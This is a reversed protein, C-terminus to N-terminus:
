NIVCDGAEVSMNGGQSVGILRWVLFYKRLIERHLTKNSFTTFTQGQNATRGYQRPIINRDYLASQSLSSGYIGCM